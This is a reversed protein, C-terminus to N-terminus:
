SNWLRIVPQLLKFNIPIIIGSLVAVLVFGFYEEIFVNYFSRNTFLWEVVTCILIIALCIVILLATQTIVKKNPLIKKISFYLVVTILVPLFLVGFGLVLVYLSKDHGSFLITYLILGVWLVFDTLLTLAIVRKYSM